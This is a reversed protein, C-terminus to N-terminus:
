APAASTGSTRWFDVTSVGTSPHWHPEWVYALSTSLAVVDMFWPVLETTCSM